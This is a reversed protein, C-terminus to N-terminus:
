TWGHTTIMRKYAIKAESLSYSNNWKTDDLLAGGEIILLKIQILMNYIKLTPMWGSLSLLEMCISGGLTIHGTRFKFRPYVIRIFPPEFPYRNPVTIELKISNINKSLLQSYLVNDKPINEINFNISLINLNSPDEFSCCYIMEKDEFKNDLLESIEKKVRSNKIKDLYQQTKLETEKIATNNYQLSIYNLISNKDIVNSDIVFLYKLIIENTNKVVYVNTTKKYTSLPKLVQFVGMIFKSSSTASSVEVRRGTSYNISYYPSNSVYIGNGFAAGNMRTQKKIDGAYLGNSLISFWNEFMSGHFVYDNKSENFTELDDLINNAKLVICGKLSPPITQSIFSYKNLKYIFYLYLKYYLINSTFCLFIDKIFYTTTFYNENIYTTLTKLEQSEVDQLFAPTGFIIDKRKSNFITKIMETILELKISHTEKYQILFNPNVFSTYYNEQCQNDDCIVYKIDFEPEPIILDDPEKCCLSCRNHRQTTFENLLSLFKPINYGYENFLYLYFTFENNGIVYLDITEYKIYNLKLKNILFLVISKHLYYNNPNNIFQLEIKVPIVSVYENIIEYNVIIKFHLKNHEGLNYKYIYIDRYKENILELEKDFYCNVIESIHTKSIKSTM